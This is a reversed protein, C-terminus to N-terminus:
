ARADGFAEAIRRREEAGEASGSQLMDSVQRLVSAAVRAGYLNIFVVKIRRSQRNSAAILRDEASIESSERHM